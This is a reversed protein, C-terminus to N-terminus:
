LEEREAQFQTAREPLFAHSLRPAGLLLSDWSQSVPVIIRESGKARVEVKHVGKPLRMDLPLRVAQSGNDFFVTGIAM